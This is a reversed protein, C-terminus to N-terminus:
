PKRADTPRQRLAYVRAERDQYELTLWTPYRKIRDEIAPWEDPQYEAIHVVIYTVHLEALSTLSEEDPFRALRKYLLDHLRPRMGSYGHVTRQWHALSHLMYATQYRENPMVPVEAISFPKPQGNLWRDVAPRKVEYPVVGFPIATFEVVLLTVAIVAVLRHRKPAISKRVRDFGFGALVALGLVALIMFRSPVRIFNLGPLWYVFPWLGLPPGSALLAASLTLVAYFTTPDRRLATARSRLTGRRDGPLTGEPHQLATKRPRCIFALVALLIPLFGPFLIASALENVRWEPVLSLIMTQVHTPSALFSETTPAWNEPGRRLGMEVQVHRYPLLVLVAPALLLAGAAGLDHFRAKLRLPEGLAVRYALLALTAVLLFVAGHGSTIAQLTFWAVAWRLDRARGRDLYAHLSALAFPIWQVTTLHLQSIRFFRAPAFAFVVGAVLAGACGVGVRRALVYAGVGCLVVSLLTVLNLALVPNGTVWLVPAAVLASGILNESYALTRAYPYFINADFIALPQHTLAHTDWSLTWMFLETDPDAGVVTTGARFALPYTLFITLAVFLVTVGWARRARSASDIAGDIM